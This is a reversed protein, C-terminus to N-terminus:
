VAPKDGRGFRTAVYLGLMIKMENVVVPRNKEKELELTGIMAGSTEAMTKLVLRRTEEPVDPYAERLVDDLHRAIMGRLRRALDGYAGGPAGSSFICLFGANRLQIRSIGEILEGIFAPLDRKALGVTLREGCLERIEEAYRDTLAEVLAQKDPFFQYLSGIPVSATEAVRNTTLGDYGGEALIGAAADLLRDFRERGRKQVPLRYRPDASSKSPSGKSM